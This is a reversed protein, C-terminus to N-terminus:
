CVGARVLMAEAATAPPGASAVALAEEADEVRNLAFFAQARLLAVEARSESDRVLGNTESRDV